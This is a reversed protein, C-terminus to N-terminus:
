QGPTPTGRYNRFDPPKIFAWYKGGGYPTEQWVWQGAPPIQDAPPRAAAPPPPPTTSQACVGAAGVTLALALAPCAYRALRL